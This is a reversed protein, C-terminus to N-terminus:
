PVTVRLRLYVRAPNGPITQRLTLLRTTASTLINTTATTGSLWSTLNTSYEPAYGPHGPGTFAAPLRLTWLWTGDPQRVGGPAPSPVAPDLGLGTELLNNLGDGDPDLLETAPDSVHLPWTQAVLTGSTTYRELSVNYVGTPLDVVGSVLGSTADVRLSALVPSSPTFRYRPLQTFLGSRLGAVFSANPNGV